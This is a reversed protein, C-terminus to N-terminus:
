KGASSSSIGCNRCVSLVYGDYDLTYDCVMSADSCTAKGGNIEFVFSKLGGRIGTGAAKLCAEKLTWLITAKTRDNGAYEAEGAGAFRPLAKLAKDTIEEIDIGVPEHGTVCAVLNGSHSVNFFVDANVAYPKGDAELSFQIEAAPVGTEGAIMERALYDALICRKRDDEKKFGDAKECRGASMGAYFREYDAGSYDRIDIVKIKM